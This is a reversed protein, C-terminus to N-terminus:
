VKPYLTIMFDDPGKSSYSRYYDAKELISKLLRNKKSIDDTKKYADIVREVKPMYQDEHSSRKKEREIDQELSQIDQEIGKIRDSLLQQREMFMEITYVGRELLDHINERQKDVEGREDQKQKLAKEKLPLLSNEKKKKKQMKDKAQFEQLMEELAQIVAAEVRKYSAGKNKKLRRCEDNSCILTASEVAANKPQYANKQRWMTKGCCECKLIGAFANRMVKEDNVHSTYSRNQLLKQVEDFVKPDIIPPFANKHVIWSEPPLTKRTYKGNRKIHKFKGWVLDGKYVENVLINRVSVASWTGKGSAPVIELLNLEEAIRRRGLGSRALEFIKEVVWSTEPDPSLKLKEDRIYGYPPRNGIHKGEKVSDVRGNYLRKNIIKFEQRAILSKIGFILEWSEDEPDYVDSPTIILTSTYRFARDILGQDLMDGRGLRDLDIVMVADIDGKEVSRLVEQMMPRESISEGSVVEEFIKVINHHEQKAVALLRKRHRDLTDYDRGEETAKKEEEIDSRSKRLYIYVDLHSPKM